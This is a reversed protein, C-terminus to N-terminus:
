IEHSVEIANHANRLLRSENLSIKWKRTWRPRAPWGLGARRAPRCPSESFFMGGRAVKRGSGSDIAARGFSFDQKLDRLTRGDGRPPACDSGALSPATALQFYPHNGLLQQATTTQCSRMIPLRVSAPRVRLHDRLDLSPQRPSTRFLSPPRFSSSFRRPLRGAPHLRASWGACGAFLPNQLARPSSGGSLRSLCPLFAPVAGPHLQETSAAGFDENGENAETGLDSRCWAGAM